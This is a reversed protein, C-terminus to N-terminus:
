VKLYAWKADFALLVLCSDSTLLWFESRPLAAVGQMGPPLAATFSDALSIRHSAKLNAATDAMARTTPVFEAPLSGRRAFCFTSLLGATAESGGESLEPTV